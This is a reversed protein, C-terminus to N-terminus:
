DAAYIAEKFPDHGIRDLTEIFSEEPHTRLARYAAVLRRIAGPVEEHPLARGAIEGIAAKEDARGGLSIQYFEEGKRDVGLIGIHGVHHHGCANICGSINIHLRGIDEQEAPDAFANQIDQGVPISRANALNCYDLGPCVIMDTILGENATALGVEVLRSYLAPLDDEAIHPLVINQTHTVRIDDQGFQEALDAIARM